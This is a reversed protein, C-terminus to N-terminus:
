KKVSENLLCRKHAWQPGIIIRHNHLLLLCFLGFKQGKPAQMATSFLTCHVAFLAFYTLYYPLLHSTRPSFCLLLLSSALPYRSSLTACLSCLMHLPGSTPSLRTFWFALTAPSSYVCLLSMTTSTLPTM